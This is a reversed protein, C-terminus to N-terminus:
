KGKPKSVMLACWVGFVGVVIAPQMAAMAVCGVLVAVLVTAKVGVQLAALAAPGCTALWTAISVILRALRYVAIASDWLITQFNVENRIMYSVSM